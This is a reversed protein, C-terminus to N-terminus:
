VIKIEKFAEISSTLQITKLLSDFDEKSLKQVTKEYRETVYKKITLDDWGDVTRNICLAKLKDIEAQGAKWQNFRPPPPFEPLEEKILPKEHKDRQITKEVTISNGDDDEQVVGVMASLGFRRAYTIAAGIGQMDKKNLILPILSKLWQGSLHLLKTELFYDNGIVACSQAVALGNASLPERCVAWVSALDAYNKNYFPNTSDKLASQIKNQAKALADAIKATEQSQNIFDM